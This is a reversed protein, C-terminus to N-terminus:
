ACAAEFQDIVDQLTDAEYKDDRLEVFRPHFLSHLENSESPKSVENAKVCMIKHMVSDRNEHLYLEMERKFGSVAVELLGDSTQCIVSGFTAATRKGDTGDRFGVIKLDVDVELKFKVQDKSDIQLDDAKAVAGVALAGGGGEARDDALGGVAQQFDCDAAEFALHLLVQVLVAVRDHVFDHADFGVLDGLRAFAILQM